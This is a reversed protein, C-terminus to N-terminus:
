ATVRLKKGWDFPKVAWNNQMESQLQALYQRVIDEMSEYNRYYSARAVGARTVLDTVTIESFPKESLLAFFADEMKKKVAANAIKRKDM